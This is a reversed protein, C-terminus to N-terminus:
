RRHWWRRTSRTSRTFSRSPDTTPNRRRSARSKSATSNSCLFRLRPIASARYGRYQRGQRRSSPRSPMLRSAGDTPNVLPKGAELAGDQVQRELALATAGDPTTIFRYEYRDHILRKTLADLASKGDAVQAQQQDAWRQITGTLKEAEAKTLDTDSM